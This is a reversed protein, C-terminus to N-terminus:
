RARRRGWALGLLGLAFTAATAPEPVDAAADIQAASAFAVDTSAASLFLYPTYVYTLIGRGSFTTLDSCGGLCSLTDRARFGYGALLKVAQNASIFSAIEGATNFDFVQDVATQAGVVHGNPNVAVNNQIGLPNVSRTPAGAAESFAFMRSTVTTTAPFPGLDHFLSPTYRGTIELRVDVLVGLAPNFPKANIDFPTFDGITQVLPGVIQTITAADACPARAFLLLPLALVTAFTRRM